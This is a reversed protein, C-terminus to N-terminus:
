VMGKYYDKTSPNSVNMGDIDMDIPSGLTDGVEM